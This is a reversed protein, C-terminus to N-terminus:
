PDEFRDTGRHKRRNSNTIWQNGRVNEEIEFSYVIPLKTLSFCYLLFLVIYADIMKIGKVYIYSVNKFNDENIIIININTLNVSGNYM